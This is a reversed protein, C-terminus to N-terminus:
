LPVQSENNRNVMSSITAVSFNTGRSALNLKANQSELLLRREARRQREATLPSAETFHQHQAHLSQEAQKFRDALATEDIKEEAPASQASTFAAPVDPRVEREVPKEVAAPSINQIGWNETETTAPQENAPKKLATKIRDALAEKKQDEVVKVLAGYRQATSSNQEDLIDDGLREEVAPVTQPLTDSSVLRDGDEVQGAEPQYLPTSQIAWGRSDLMAALAKLRSKVEGQSLDKTLHLDTRKPATITVSQVVGEQDWIRKHPRLLFKIHSLLWLEMPQDGGIPAALVAFLIMPLSFFFILVWRTIGLDGAILIRFNVFILIGAIAAYIFQKLTLPGVLKDEAEIDQIVKYTAM